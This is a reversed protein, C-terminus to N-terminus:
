LLGVFYWWPVMICMMFAFHAVTKAAMFKIFNKMTCMGFAFFIAYSAYEYPFLLQDMSSILTYIAVLPNLGIDIAVQTLPASLAGCAALPTLVFNVGFGALWIIAIVGLSSIDELLPSIIHSVIAGFGLAGSVTGICLCSGIFLVMSFNIKHVTNSNACNIGPLLFLWPILVFGWEMAIGHIGTTLLFVFLLITIAFTKKETASVKGLKRYEEEFYAKGDIGDSNPRFVLFALFMLIFCFLLNPLNHYLYGVWSVGVDPIVTRAGGLALGMFAPKYVLPTTSITSICGAFMIVASEKSKGLNMAMCIGFCFPALLFNASGSTMVTLILGAFFIGWAIGKFTGGCKLICWYAVRKLVGTENLVETLLLAGLVLWPINGAYGSFATATPVIGSIAYLAPIFMSALGYDFFEFALVLIGATTIMLFIKIQHTFLGSEPIFFICIPTLFVAIWQILQAINVKKMEAHM